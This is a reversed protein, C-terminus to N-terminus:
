TGSSRGIGLVRRYVPQLSNQVYVEFADPAIRIWLCVPTGRRLNLSELRLIEEQGWHEDLFANVVVQQPIM